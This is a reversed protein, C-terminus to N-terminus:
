SNIDAVKAYETLFSHLTVDTQPHSAMAKVVKLSATLCDAGLLAARFGDQATRISAALIQTQAGAKRYQAAIQELTAFGDIGVDQARGLFPAVYTAGAVEALLAQAPSYVLTVATQIGLASLRKVAQFGAWIAPIKVVIRPSIAALQQGEAVMGEADTSLVEAFVPRCDTMGLIEQLLAPFARGEKAALAPNTTVGAILGSAMGERIEALNATDLFIKM